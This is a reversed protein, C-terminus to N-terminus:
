MKVETTRPVRRYVAPNPGSAEKEPKILGEEVLQKLVGRLSDMKIKRGAFKPHEELKDRVAFSTFTEPLDNLLSRTTKLMGRIRKEREAGNNSETKPQSVPISAPTPESQTATPLSAGGKRRLMALVTDIAESERKYDAELQAKLELVEQENVPCFHLM